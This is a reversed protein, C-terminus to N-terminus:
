SPPKWRIAVRERVLVRQGTKCGSVDISTFFLDPEDGVEDYNRSATAPDLLAPYNVITRGARCLDNYLTQGAFLIRPLGWHLLDPSTAYYIGDLPMAGAAKAQFVAIWNRSARHYTLSGVPSVFPEIPQCAPQHDAKTRYPDRYRVAYGKGDFARWSGADTPDATRFLCVGDLQGTWGTTSIMAYRYRGDTVINSPNFFGRQRGQGSDQPFPASAVVFPALRQFDRGDDNSQYAVITNYWCALDGSVHCRGFADAHYEHHILASVTRGDATWTAAVFNRDAYARPDPDSPSGLAVHCDIKLHALDPGVLARAVDHLAFMVTRGDATRFARPNLDPMDDPSCGDRAADFVISPTGVIEMSIDGAAWVPAPAFALALCGLRFLAKM